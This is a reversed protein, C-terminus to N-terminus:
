GYNPIFEFGCQPCTVEFETEEARPGEEHNPPEQEHIDALLSELEGETFLGEMDVEANLDALIQEPNWDLDLQAIRNARYIVRRAMESKTDPIDTRVMVIPKTGDHEVVIAEDGMKDYAVELRAAGDLSEGDAAVTMPAVWGDEQVSDELAKLGRQTHRNPNDKLPMFESLKGSRVKVKDNM